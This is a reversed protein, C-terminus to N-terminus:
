NILNRVQLAELKECIAEIEEDSKIMRRIFRHLEFYFSHNPGPETRREGLVDVNLKLFERHEPLPSHDLVDDFDKQTDLIHGIICALKQNTDM